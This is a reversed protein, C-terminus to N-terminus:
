GLPRIHEFMEWSLQNIVYREEHSVNLFEIFMPHVVVKASGPHSAFPDTVISNYSFRYVVQERGQTVSPDLGSRRIAAVIQRIGIAGMQYLRLVIEAVNTLGTHLQAGSVKNCFEDYAMATRLQRNELHQLLVRIGPYESEFEELFERRVIESAERAVVDRFLEENAVGNSKEMESFLAVLYMQIERPKWLTHRLIYLFSHEKVETMSGNSVTFPFLAEWARPVVSEPLDLAIAIRRNVFELLEFPNWEVRLVHEHEITARERLHLELFKDLPITLLVDLWQFAPDNKIERAAIVLGGLLETLFERREQHDGGRKTYFQDIFDDFKDLTILARKRRSGLENAVVKAAGALSVDFQASTQHTMLATISALLTPLDGANRAIVDNISNQLSSFYYVVLAYFAENGPFGSEDFKWDKLGARRAIEDRAQVLKSLSDSDLIDGGSELLQRTVVFVSACKISERWALAAVRAPTLFSSLDSGQGFQRIKSVGIQFDSYFFGFLTELPFEDARIELSTSALYNAENQLLHGVLLATKGSGKRGVLLCRGEDQAHTYSTTRIFANSQGDHLLIDQEAKLQNFASKLRALQDLNPIIQQM